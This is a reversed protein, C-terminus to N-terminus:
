NAPLPTCIEILIGNPDRLYGVTQGWPKQTLPELTIAGAEIAKTFDEEIKETVFVLEIGTPKDSNSLREYGMKLNSNGLQFSAFALTTEGSVLEGYDLEPTIFKRSFGFAREYFSITAEVNEVYAITYGYKM